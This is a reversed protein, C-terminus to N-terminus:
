DIAIPGALSVGATSIACRHALMEVGGARAEAFAAAYAPDLDAAMTLRDCDTRQIVYLMMARAGDAAVRALEGLHKTGRATVCDPFEALRGTRRLHVNKVEVFAPPRSAGELLFDVRSRTGYPVEARVQDYGNLAEIRGARLAEGVVRNPTHTDIGAWDGGGLEVLRWGFRLKRKPNDNPELWVAMGPACLGMMSGSNPCHATVTEGGDLAIDALFRNYRRLLRGRVLPTTFLM